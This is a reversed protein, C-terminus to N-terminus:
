AQPTRFYVDVSQLLLLLLLLLVLAVGSSCVIPLTQRWCFCM